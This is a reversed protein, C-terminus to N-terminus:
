FQYTVSLSITRPRTVVYRPRGPIAFTIQANPDLSQRAVKNLLNQGSLALEWRDHRLGTRFNLLRVKEVQSAPDRSGDGLRSYNAFSSGTYQYDLRAFGDDAALIPLTTEAYLAYQWKPVYQIQDGELAGLAPLDQQLTSKLHTASLGAGLRQTLKGNIELEAGKIRAEGFNTILGFGCQLTIGQQIDSWDTRYAAANVTLRRNLWDTKAGLEYNKISDPKVNLANDAGCVPPLPRNGFGRRFGESYQVYVMHDPTVDYSLNGKYVFGSSDASSAAESVVGPVNGGIFWGSTFLDESTTVDYHRLGGTLRLSDSFHYTLEGFEAVQREKAPPGWATLINNDPAYLPSSPDNGAVAANYEPPSWDFTSAQHVRSYYAGVIADFGAVTESTALRLEQTFAHTKLGVEAVTAFAADTEPLGYFTPFLQIASMGESTYKFKQDSYSTSSVLALAGFDYKVTANLLQFQDDQPEAVDALFNQELEDDPNGAGGTIDTFGNFHQHQLYAMLSIRLQETPQWLGTTRFGWTREDPRNEASGGPYNRNVFGGVDRGWFAGRVAAAGEIIPLNLVLEADGGPAAGGKGDTVLATAQVSGTLQSLNPANPILRITGGISSSGYLTGQPGRLVEIRALDALRPNVVFSLNAPMPTEDIYYAVAPAGASPNIGRITPIQRGAGADQFTLGPISRAYDTFSEAGMSEHTAGTVASIAAPVDQLRQERKQATVIIEQLGGADAQSQSEENQAAGPSDSQALRIPNAAQHSDNIWTFGGGARRIMIAGSPSREYVLGTDELLRDLAEEAGYDGQLSVPRAAGVLSEVFIIEQGSTQAYSRLAQPLTQGTIDFRYSPGGDSNGARAYGPTAVGAALLLTCIPAALWRGATANGAAGGLDCEPEHLSTRATRNMKM